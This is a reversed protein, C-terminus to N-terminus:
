AAETAIWVYANRGTRTKRKAYSGDELILKEIFPPDCSALDRFRASCTQHSIGLIREAEDCTLGAPMGRVARLVRSCLSNVHPKISTAAEVSTEVGNHPATAYAFLPLDSTMM